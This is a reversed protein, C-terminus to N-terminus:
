YYSKISRNMIICYIIKSNIYRIKEDHLFYSYYNSSLDALIPLKLENLSSLIM